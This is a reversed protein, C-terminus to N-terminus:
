RRAKRRLEALRNVRKTEERKRDKAEAEAALAPVLAEHRPCYGSENAINGCEILLHAKKGNTYKCRESM